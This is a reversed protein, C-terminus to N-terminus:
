GPGFLLASVRDVVEAHMDPTVQAYIDMTTSVRAHGARRSVAGIPAGAQIALTIHTHRLDHIRIRPVGALAILRLYDRQLNNPNIPTGLSSVFVLDNDQWTDDARVRQAQWRERHVELADMIVPDVALTRRSAETKPRPKIVARGRELGVTQEVRLTGNTFEVDRWRLGLAEGRRM